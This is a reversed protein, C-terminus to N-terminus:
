RGYWTEYTTVIEAKEAATLSMQCRSLIGDLLQEPFPGFGVDPNSDEYGIRWRLCEVILLRETITV